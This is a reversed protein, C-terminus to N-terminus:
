SAGCRPSRSPSIPRTTTVSRSYVRQGKANYVNVTAQEPNANYFRVNFQGFNPNPYVWMNESAAGSVLLASSTQVCGTPATYVVTYSGQEDLTIGSISSGTAGAVPSGDLFWQYSGGPPMGTATIM